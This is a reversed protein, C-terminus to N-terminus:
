ASAVWLEATGYGVKGETSCRVLMRHVTHAKPETDQEKSAKLVMALMKHTVGTADTLAIEISKPGGDPGAHTKVTASDLGRNSVAVHIFGADSDKGQASCRLMGFAQDKTFQCAVMMRSGLSELDLAGWAHDRFGLTDIEFDEIGTSLRGAVTGFQQAHSIGPGTGEPMREESIVTENLGTFTLDMEVHSRKEIRGGIRPMNAKMTIRWIGQPMVRSFALGKAEVSQRDFPVKEKGGITSGDPMLLHFQFEKQRLNPKLAIRMYGCLDRERDYFDFYFEESWDKEPGPGHFADQDM